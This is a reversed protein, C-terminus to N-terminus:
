TDVADIEIGYLEDLEADGMGMSAALALLIPNLRDIETSASWRIIAEVQMEPPVQNFIAQMSPPVEGRAAAGAEAVPIIGAGVAAILLESRSLVADERMERLAIEQWDERRMLEGDVVRWARIDGLDMETALHNGQPPTIGDVLVLSYLIAGDEGYYILM